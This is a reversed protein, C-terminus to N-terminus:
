NPKKNGHASTFHDSGKLYSQATVIYSPKCPNSFVRHSLYRLRLSQLGNSLLARKSEYSKSTYTFMKKKPQEEILSELRGGLVNFEEKARPYNVWFQLLPNTSDKPIDKYELKPDCFFRASHAAELWFNLDNYDNVLVQLEEPITQALFNSNLNVGLSQKQAPDVSAFDNVRTKYDAWEYFPNRVWPMDDLYATRIHSAHPNRLSQQLLEQTKKLNQIAKIIGNEPLSRSYSDIAPLYKDLSDDIRKKITVLDVPPYLTTNDLFDQLIEVFENRFHLLQELDIDKSERMM